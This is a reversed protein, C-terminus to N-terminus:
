RTFPKIGGRSYVWQRNRAHVMPLLLSPAFWESRTLWRYDYTLTSKEEQRRMRNGIFLHSPKAGIKLSLEEDPEVGAFDRIARFTQDFGLCLEEYGINLSPVGAQHIAAEIKRNERWWRFAGEVALMAAPRTRGKKRRKVDIMSVVASRYDKTLHLVRLDLALLERAALELLPEHIKSADVPWVDPGYVREFVNLAVQYRQTLNSPKRRELAKLVVGWYPCQAVDAGCSCTEAATKDPEKILLRMARDIGGIGIM